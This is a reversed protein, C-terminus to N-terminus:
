LSLLDSIRKDMWCMEWTLGVGKLWWDRLLPHWEQPFPNILWRKMSCGPCHKGVELGLAATRLSWYANNFHKNSHLNSPRKRWLSQSLLEPDPDLFGHKKCIELNNLAAWRLVVSACPVRHPWSIIPWDPHFVTTAGNGPYGCLQLSLCVTRPQIQSDCDFSLNVLQIYVALFSILFVSAQLFSM